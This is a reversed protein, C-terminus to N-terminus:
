AIVSQKHWQLFSQFNDFVQDEPILDPILSIRRLMDGPQVQLGTLVVTKGRKTLDLIADELVYVGSQDIHPVREMRIVLTATDEPLSEVLDRFGSSFGFFFPGYLHKVVVRGEPATVLEGQDDPEDEWVPQPDSPDGAGSGIVGVVSDGAALSESAPDGVGDGGGGHGGLPTVTTRQEALDGIRKMFLLSALVVGAAVAHILNGFVTWALVVIMVAADSKPVYRLDKIGRYDIIAIGVSILLGALVSLPIYAALSGLGLLAVLQFVGHIIGSLRTVGGGKINVVTGKTAGAGPIGGFIAAVANGVGQGILERRSNHRTKTINDAIVATLLSDISGLLALTLGSQVIFTFHSPDVNLLTGIQLAPLGRPIDGIMPVDANIALAVLTGTLLAVLVSPVKKTVKPFLYNVVLTLVGLAVAMANISQLPEGIRTLVEITSKPSKSGLLPWLQLLIIIVGVGSMFGSVVPYPFYRIYRGIGLLGLGIQFVGGALFCMLVLGLGSEIDGATAIAYAVISASVVTMPGTPGSCQTPTGGLAAALIGVAIGGYLGAEAGLGSQVGFALALPLAIIGAILGGSIDGKLNSAFSALISVGFRYLFFSPLVFVYVASGHADTAIGTGRRRRSSPRLRKGFSLGTM